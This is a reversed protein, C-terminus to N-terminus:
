DTAQISAASFILQASKSATKGPHLRCTSGDIRYVVFDLREQNGRNSDNTQPIYEACAHTVGPGIIEYAQKHCAIYRRWDFLNALDRDINSDVGAAIIKELINRAIKHLSRPPKFNKEELAREPNVHAAALVVPHAVSHETADTQLSSQLNAPAPDTSSSGQPQVLDQADNAPAPDTSASGRPQLLDQQTAHIHEQPTPLQRVTIPTAQAWLCPAETHFWAEMIEYSYVYGELARLETAAAQTNDVANACASVQPSGQLGAPGPETTNSSRKETAVTPPAFCHETAVTQSSDPLSAPGSETNGSSQKRTAANPPAVSHETAAPQFLAQLGAPGPPSSAATTSDRDHGAVANSSDDAAIPANHETAIVQPDNAAARQGAIADFRRASAWLTKGPVPGYYELFEEHSYAINNWALRRESLM